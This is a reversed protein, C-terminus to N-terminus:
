PACGRKAARAIRRSAAIWVTTCTLATRYKFERGVRISRPGLAGSIAKSARAGAPIGEGTHDNVLCTVQDTGCLVPSASQIARYELDGGFSVSFDLLAENM